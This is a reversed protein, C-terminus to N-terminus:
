VEKEAKKQGRLQFFRTKCWKKGNKQHIKGRLPLANEVMNKGSKQKFFRFLRYKKWRKKTSFKIKGGRFFDKLFFVAEPM